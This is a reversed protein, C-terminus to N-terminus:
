SLQPPGGLRVKWRRYPDGFHNHARWLSQAALGPAEAVRSKVDRTRVSCIRGGTLRNDPCLGLRGAFHKATTFKAAFEPGPEGLLVRATPAQFGPVAAPPIPTTARRM